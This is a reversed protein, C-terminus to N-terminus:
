HTTAQIAEAENSFIPFVKDMRTLKFMSMTSDKLGCIVLDGNKGQRKLASVLAGLGSSDIFDAETLDLVIHSNGADIYEAMKDKFSVAVHADLRPQMLKIILAEGEKRDELLM